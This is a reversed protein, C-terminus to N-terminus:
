DLKLPLDIAEPRNGVFSLRVKLLPLVDSPVVFKEEITVSADKAPPHLSTINCGDVPKAKRDLDRSIDRSLMPDLPLWRRGRDDVLTFRCQAWGKGIESRATAALQVIVLRMQGAFTVKTDRGDGIVRVKEVQWEAGAYIQGAAAPRMSTEIQQVYDEVNRRANVAFAVVLLLPLAVLSLLRLKKERRSGTM